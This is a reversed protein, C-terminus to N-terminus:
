RYRADSHCLCAQDDPFKAFGPCVVTPRLMPGDRTPLASCGWSDLALERTPTSGCRCPVEASERRLTNSVFTSVAAAPHRDGLRIM